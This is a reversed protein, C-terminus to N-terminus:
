PNWVRKGIAMAVRVSLEAINEVENQSIPGSAGGWNSNGMIGGAIVAAYDGIVDRSPDNQTDPVLPEDPM